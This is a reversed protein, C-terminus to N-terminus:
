YQFTINLCNLINLIIHLWGYVYSGLFLKVSLVIHELILCPFLQDLFRALDIAEVELNSVKGIAFDKQHVGSSLYTM